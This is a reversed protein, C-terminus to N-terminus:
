PRRKVRSRGEERKRGECREQEQSCVAVQEREQPERGGAKEM